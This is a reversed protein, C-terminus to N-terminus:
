PKPQRRQQPEAEQTGLEAAREAIEDLDIDRIFDNEFYADLKNWEALVLEKFRPNKDWEATPVDFANVNSAMAFVEPWRRKLTMMYRRGAYVQGM